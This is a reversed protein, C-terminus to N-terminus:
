RANDPNNYIVKGRDVFLTPKYEHDGIIYDPNEVTGNDVFKIIKNVRRAIVTQKEVDLDLGLYSAPNTTVGRVAKEVPIGSNIIASMIHYIDFMGLEENEFNGTTSDTGIFDLEAGEDRAERFVKWSFHKGAFAVDMLVGKKKGEFFAKRIHGKEDLIPARLGSFAHSIVDGGRLHDIIEEYPIVANSIHVDVHKGTRDALRRAVELLKLDHKYDMLGLHIKVGLLNGTRDSNLVQIDKEEDIHEVQMRNRFPFGTLGIPFVHMFSKVKMNATEMWFRNTEEWMNCGYTGADIAAVVGKAYHRIEPVCLFRSAKPAWIHAHTDIVGPLIMDDDELCIKQDKDVNTRVVMESNYDFHDANWRRGGRITITGM